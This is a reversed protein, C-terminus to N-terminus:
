NRSQIQGISNLKPGISNLKPEISNLSASGPRGRPGGCTTPCYPGPVTHVSSGVTDMRFNKGGSLKKGGGSNIRCLIELYVTNNPTLHEKQPMPHEQPPMPHEQPPMPHEQPPM